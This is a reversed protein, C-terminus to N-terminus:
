FSKQDRGPYETSWLKGSAQCYYCYKTVLHVPWNVEPTGSHNEVLEECDKCLIEYGFCCGSFLQFGGEAYSYVGTRAIRVSHKVKKRGCVNCSRHATKRGCVECISKTEELRNLVKVNALSSLTMNLLCRSHAMLYSFRMGQLRIFAPSSAGSWGPADVGAPSPWRRCWRKAAMPGNKVPKEDERERERTEGETGTVIATM